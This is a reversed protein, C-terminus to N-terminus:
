IRHMYVTGALELYKSCVEATSAAFVAIVQDCAEKPTHLCKCLSVCVILVVHLFLCVCAHVCVFANM